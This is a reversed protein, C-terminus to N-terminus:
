SKVVVKICVCLCMYVRLHTYVYVYVLTSTIISIASAETQSVTSCRRVYPIVVNERQRRSLLLGPNPHPPTPPPYTPGPVSPSSGRTVADPEVFGPWCGRRRKGEGRGGIWGKPSGGEVTIPYFANGNLRRGRWARSSERINTVRMYCRDKINSAVAEAHIYIKNVIARIRRLHTHAPDIHVVRVGVFIWSSDVPDYDM